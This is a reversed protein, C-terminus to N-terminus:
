QLEIYDIELAFTEEKKNGILFAIETMAAGSYNPLELLRGRFAPYMDSFPITLTEWDGTTGIAVIYSFRQSVDAKTRFQYSNGDGKLRIIIKSFTSTDLTQFRYRVSSFGGNNELSVKGRFFGHGEPNISFEGQSLGGMVGDNVVSWNDIAVNDNFDFLTTGNMLSILILIKLILQMTNSLYLM